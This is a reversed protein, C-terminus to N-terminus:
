LIIVLPRYGKKTQFIEGNQPEIQRLGEDTLACNWCHWGGMRGFVIGVANSERDAIGKFEFAFNDCDHIEPQYPKKDMRSYYDNVTQLTIPYHKMDLPLLILFTKFDKISQFWLKIVKLMKPMRM